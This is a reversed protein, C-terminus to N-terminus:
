EVAGALTRRLTEMRGVGTGTRVGAAVVPSGVPSPVTVICAGPRGIGQNSTYGGDVQFQSPIGAASCASSGTGAVFRVTADQPLTSERVIDCAGEAYNYFCFSGPGPDDGDGGDGCSLVMQRAQERSVRTGGVSVSEYCTIQHNINDLDSCIQQQLSFPINLNGSTAGGTVSPSIPVSIYQDAGAFRVNVDFPTNAPVSSYSIALSGQSGPQLTSTSSSPSGSIVPDGPNNTAQPPAGSRVTGGSFTIGETVASAPSGGGTGPLNDCGVGGFALLGILCSQALIRGPLKIKM